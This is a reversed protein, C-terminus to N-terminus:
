GPQFPSADPAHLSSRLGSPEASPIRVTPLLRFIAGTFAAAMLGRIFPMDGYWFWNFSSVLFAGYMLRPWFEGTPNRLERRAIIWGFLFMILLVGWIGFNKFPVMVPHVGGIQLPYYWLGPGTAGEIPRKIGLARTVLGPPLSAFYDYYTQGHLMKMTGSTYDNALALNGLLVATWTGGASVEETVASSIGGLPEGAVRRLQGVALYIAIVTAFVPILFRFRARQRDGDDPAEGPPRSTIHVAGLAVVLGLSERDGRLLQLVIVIYTTVLITAGIKWGRRGLKTDGQADLLLLTVLVYSPLYLTGGAGGQSAAELADAFYTDRSGGSRASVISLLLALALALLFVPLSLVRAPRRAFTNGRFRGALQFGAVLGLIGVLGTM